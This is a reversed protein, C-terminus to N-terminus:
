PRHSRSSHHSGFLMVSLSTLSTTAVVAGLSLATLGVSYLLAAAVAAGTMQLLGLVLRLRNLLRSSSGDPM